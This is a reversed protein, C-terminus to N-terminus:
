VKMIEQLASITVKLARELRIVKAKLELAKDKYQDSLKDAVQFDFQLNAFYEWAWDRVDDQNKLRPLAESYADRYEIETM